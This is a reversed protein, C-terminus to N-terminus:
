IGARIGLDFEDDNAVGDITEKTCVDVFKLFLRFLLRSGLFGFFFSSSFAGLLFDLVLKNQSRYKYFLRSSTCLFTSSSM